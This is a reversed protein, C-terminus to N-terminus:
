LSTMPAMMLTTPTEKKKRPYTYVKCALQFIELNLFLFLGNKRNM